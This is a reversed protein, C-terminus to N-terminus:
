SNYASSLNSELGILCLHLWAPTLCCSHILPTHLYFLTQSTTYLSLLSTGSSSGLLNAPALPLLTKFELDHFLVCYSSMPSGPGAKLCLVLLWICTESLDCGSGNPSCIGSPSDLPLSALWPAEHCSFLSLYCHDHHHFGNGNASHKNLCLVTGPHDCVENWNM